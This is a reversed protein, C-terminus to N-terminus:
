PGMLRAPPTSVQLGNVHGPTHTKAWAPYRAIVVKVLDTVQPAIPAHDRLARTRAVLM